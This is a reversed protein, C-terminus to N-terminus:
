VPFLLRVVARGTSDGCRYAARAVRKGACAGLGGEIGSGKLRAPLSRGPLRGARIGASALPSGSARRVGSGRPVSSTRMGGADARAENSEDHNV